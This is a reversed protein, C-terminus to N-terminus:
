LLRKSLQFRRNNIKETHRYFFNYGRQRPVFSSCFLMASTFIMGRELSRMIYKLVVLKSQPLDNRRLACELSYHYCQVTSLRSKAIEKLIIAWSANSTTQDKFVNSMISNATRYHIYTNRHVMAFKSLVQCLKFMWLVDEHIINEKFFVDHKLLFSKRILKNWANDNLRPTRFTYYHDRIWKSDDVFDVSDFASLNYWESFDCQIYGQVMEVDEYKETASMLSSVCDLTLEDDSDLYFIWDGFAALTGTNRAVSLGRNRDHHIIRFSVPGIYSAIYQEAIEISNDQGCDDVVICEMSGQYDQKGVSDLCRFIWSEVNYVPVIISVDM